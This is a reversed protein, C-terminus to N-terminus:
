NTWHPPNLQPLRAVLEAADDALGAWLQSGRKPRAPKEAEAAVFRWVIALLEPAAAMVEVNANQERCDGIPFAAGILEGGAHITAPKAHDNSKTAVWKGPTPKNNSM